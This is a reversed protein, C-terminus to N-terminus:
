CICRPILNQMKGPTLEVLNNFNNWELTCVVYTNYAQLALEHPCVPSGPVIRAPSRTVRGVICLVAQKKL